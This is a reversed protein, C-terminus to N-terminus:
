LTSGRLRFCVALTGSSVATSTIAPGVLLRSLPSNSAIESNMAPPPLIIAMNSGPNGSPNLAKIAGYPTTIPSVITASATLLTAPSISVGM